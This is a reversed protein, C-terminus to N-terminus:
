FSDDRHVFVWNFEAQTPAVILRMASLATVVSMIDEDYRRCPQTKSAPVRYGDIIQPHKAHFADSILNPQTATQRVSQRMTLSDSQKATQKVSQTQKVSERDSQWNSQSHLLRDSQTDIQRDTM